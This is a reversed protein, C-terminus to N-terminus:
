PVVIVPVYSPPAHAKRSIITIVLRTRGPRLGTLGAERPQAISIDEIRFEHGIGLVPAGSARRSEVKVLELDQVSQGVHLVISDPSLVLITDALAVLSDQRRAFAEMRPDPPHARRISDFTASDVYAIRGRAIHTPTAQTAPLAHHACAALVIVAFPSTRLM